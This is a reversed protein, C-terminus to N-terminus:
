FILNKICSVNTKDNIKNVYQCINYALIKCMLRTIFGYFSKALVRETNLQCTLQSFTTEIRRRIKFIIRRLGKSYNDKANKRKLALLMQGQERLRKELEKSVYGKDGIIVRDREDVIDPLAARDDVNAPTVEYSLIFGSTTTKVHVKYGFYTQKKSANHGYAAGEYHFSKCFKARGFKCVELPFSDVIVWENLDETFYSSLKSFILNMTQLLNRRTRNFRTRDCMKPFLHSYNRRVFNLLASESDIGLLDGCIAITIIESDSLIASKINRRFKICDPACQQYLDDVLTFIFTIFDEFTLISTTYNNHFKSLIIGERCISESTTYCVQRLKNNKM